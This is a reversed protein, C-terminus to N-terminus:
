LYPVLAMYAPIALLSFLATLAVGGAAYEEDGGTAKAVIPTQSMVPMAAQILLVNRMLEPASPFFRATLLLLGPAVLFRGALILAYGKQWRIKGGKLMRMLVMGTFIMSLPTVLNGIYKAADLIFAPLKVGVLVLAICVLFATLPLPMLKKWDLRGTQGADRRMLQYGWIWFISTNAIYYLLAYPIAKEGFLALSVPVGIFVSNSFAVM